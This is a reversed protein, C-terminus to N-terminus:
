FTAVVKEVIITEYEEGLIMGLSDNVFEKDLYLFKRLKYNMFGEREHWINVWSKWWCLFQLVLIKLLHIQSANLNNM